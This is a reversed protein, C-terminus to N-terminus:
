VLTVQLGEVRFRLIFDELSGGSAEYIWVIIEVPATTSTYAHRTVASKDLKDLRDFRQVIRM